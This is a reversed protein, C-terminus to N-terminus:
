KGDEKLYEWGRKEIEQSLEAWSCREKVWLLIERRAEDREATLTEVRQQLETLTERFEDANRVPEDLDKFCDWGRRNAEALAEDFVVSRKQRRCVEQRAEDREARLREIEDAAFKLGDSVEQVGQEDAGIAWARIRAVIDETDSM